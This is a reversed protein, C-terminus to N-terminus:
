KGTLQTFLHERTFCNDFRRVSNIKYTVNNQDVFLAAATLEIQGLGTAYITLATQLGNDRDRSSEVVKFCRCPIKQFKLRSNHSGSLPVKVTGVERFLEECIM